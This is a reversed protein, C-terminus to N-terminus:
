NVVVRYFHLNPRMLTHVVLFGRTTRVDAAEGPESKVLNEPAFVAYCELSLLEM